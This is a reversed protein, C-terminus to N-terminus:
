IGHTLNNNEEYEQLTVGIIIMFAISVHQYNIVHHFMSQVYVNTSKIVYTYDCIMTYYYNVAGGVLRGSSENCSNTCINPAPHANNRWRQKLVQSWLYIATSVKNGVNIM